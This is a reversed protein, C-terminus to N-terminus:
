DADALRILYKVIVTVRVDLNVATAEIAGESIRREVGIVRNERENDAVWREAVGDLLPAPVM